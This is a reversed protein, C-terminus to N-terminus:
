PNDIGSQWFCSGVAMPPSSIMGSPMNQSKSVPCTGVGSCTREREFSSASRPSSGLNTSFSTSEHTEELSILVQVSSSLTETAEWCSQVGHSLKAHTNSSEVVVTDESGCVLLTDLLSVVPSVGILIGDIQQGLKGSEGGPDVSVGVFSALLERTDLLIKVKSTLMKTFGRM